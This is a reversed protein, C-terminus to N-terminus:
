TWRISNSTEQRTQLRRLRVEGRGQPRLSLTVKRLPEGTTSSVVQGSISGPPQAPTQQQQQGQGQQQGGNQGQPFAAVVVILSVISGCILAAKHKMMYLSSFRLRFNAEKGGNLM